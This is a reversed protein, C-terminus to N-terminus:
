ASVQPMHGGCGRVFQEGLFAAVRDAAPEGGLPLDPRGLEAHPEPHREVGDAAVELLEGVGALQPAHVAARQRRARRARGAEGLAQGVVDRGLARDGGGRRREDARPVDDREAAARRDELERAQQGVAELRGHDGRARVDGDREGVVGPQGDVDDAPPQVGLRARDGAGLGDVRQAAHPGVDAQQARARQV